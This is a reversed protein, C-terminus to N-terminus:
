QVVITSGVSFSAYNRSADYNKDNRMQGNILAENHEDDNNSNIPPRNVIPM